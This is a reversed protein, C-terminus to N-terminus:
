MVEKLATADLQTTSTVCSREVPMTNLGFIDRGVTVRVRPDSLKYLWRDYLFHIFGLGLRFGVTTVTFVLAAASLGVAPLRQFDVFLLCFLGFGAIMLLAAFLWPSGGRHNAHVHSAIGIAVLWHNLGIIAIGWLGFHFVLIMGLGDTLIFIARPFSCGGARRRPLSWWERTLMLGILLLAAALYGRQVNELFPHPHAPWGILDHIGHALQPIFPILMTAWVVACCYVLDIRRQRSDYGGQKHRYISMVGFAQKGFHYANWVAYVAVMVMFPNRFETFTTPGVTLSFSDPNFRLNSVQRGAIIGILAAGILIAVPLVIYKIPRRFMPPRFDDHSWALAMPSLLHGTQTLLVLWLIITGAPMRLSLMTLAAGFPLGSLLHARRAAAIKYPLTNCAM